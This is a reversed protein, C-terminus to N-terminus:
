LYASTKYVLACFDVKGKTKAHFNRKRKSLMITIVCSFKMELLLPISFYKFSFNLDYQQWQSREVFSPSLLFLILLGINLVTDLNTDLDTDTWTSDFILLDLFREFLATKLNRYISYDQFGNWDM